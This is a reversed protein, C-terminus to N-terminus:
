EEGKLRDSARRARQEVTAAASRGAEAADEAKSAVTRVAKDKMDQVMEKEQETTEYMKTRAKQARDRLMARTDNGSRPALLLGAAVGAGIGVLLAVGASGSNHSTHHHM